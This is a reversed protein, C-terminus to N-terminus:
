VEALSKKLPFAYFRESPGSFRYSSTKAISRKRFRHDNESYSCIHGLKLHIVRLVRICNEHVPIYDRYISSCAISLKEVRSTSIALKGTLRTAMALRNQQLPYLSSASDEIADIALIRGHNFAIQKSGVECFRSAARYDQNFPLYQRCYYM